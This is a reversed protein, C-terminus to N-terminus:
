TTTSVGSKLTHMDNFLHRNRSRTLPPKRHKHMPNGGLDKAESLTVVNKM